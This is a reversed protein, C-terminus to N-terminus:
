IKMLILPILSMEIHQPTKILIKNSSSFKAQDRAAVVEAATPPPSPARGPVHPEHIV